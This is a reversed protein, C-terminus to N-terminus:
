GNLCIYKLNDDDVEKCFYFEIELAQLLCNQSVKAEKQSGNQSWKADKKNNKVMIEFYKGVAHRCCELSMGVVNRCCEERNSEGRWIVQLKEGLLGFGPGMFPPPPIEGAPRGWNDECGCLLLVLEQRLWRWMRTDHSQLSSIGGRPCAKRIQGM